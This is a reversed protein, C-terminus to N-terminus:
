SGLSSIKGLLLTILYVSQVGCSGLPNLLSYFKILFIKYLLHPNQIAFCLSSKIYSISIKYLSVHPINKKIYCIFIKYRLATPFNQIAFPSRKYCIYPLNQTAFPSKTYYLMLFIKHLLHLNQIEFFLSSKTNCISIKYLLAYPLNEIAFPSKTYYLM